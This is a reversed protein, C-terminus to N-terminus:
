SMKRNIKYLYFATSISVVVALAFILDSDRWQQIKTFFAFVIMVNVAVAAAIIQTKSLLPKPNNM